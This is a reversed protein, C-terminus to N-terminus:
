LCIFSSGQLIKVALRAPEKLIANHWSLASVDDHDTMVCRRVVEAFDNLTIVGLLIISYSITATILNDQIRSLRQWRIKARM